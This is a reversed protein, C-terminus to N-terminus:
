SLELKNKSIKQCGSRRRSSSISWRSCWSCHSTRPGAGWNVGRVCSSDGTGFLQKLNWFLTNPSDVFQVKLDQSKPGECYPHSDKPIENSKSDRNSAFHNKLVTEELLCPHYNWSGMWDGTRWSLIASNKQKFVAIISVWLPLSLALKVSAADATRICGDM